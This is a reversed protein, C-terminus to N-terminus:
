LPLNPKNYLNRNDYASYDCSCHVELSSGVTSRLSQGEHELLICCFKFSKKKLKLFYDLFDTYVVKLQAFLVLIMTLRYKHLLVEM